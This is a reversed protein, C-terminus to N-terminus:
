ATPLCKTIFFPIKLLNPRIKSSNYDMIEKKGKTYDMDSKCITALYLKEKEIPLKRKKYL